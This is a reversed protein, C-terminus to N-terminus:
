CGAAPTRPWTRTSFPDVRSDNAEAVECPGVTWSIPECSQYKYGSMGGRPATFRLLCRSTRELTLERHLVCRVPRSQCDTSRLAGEPERLSRWRRRKIRADNRGQCLGECRPCLTEKSSMTIRDPFLSAACPANHPRKRGFQGRGGCSNAWTRKRLEWRTVRRSTAEAFLSSAHLFCVRSTLIQSKELDM